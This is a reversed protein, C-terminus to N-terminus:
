EKDLIKKKLAIGWGYNGIGGDKRIIRHCPIILSIPNQGIATGVARSAKPTGIKQAVGGYSLTRGRPIDLLANWVKEQFDTGKYYLPISLPQNNKWAQITKIALSKTAEQDQQLNADKFWDHLREIGNGKYAGQEATTMFGLWCLAGADNQAIVMDVNFPSAHIGYIIEEM